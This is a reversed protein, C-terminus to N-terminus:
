CGGLTECRWIIEGTSENILKIARASGPLLRFDKINRLNNPDFNITGDRDLFIARRKYLLNRKKIEGKKYDDTVKKLREPTGMDKIYEPTNYGYLKEKRFIQPFMDKGFDLEQGISLIESHM